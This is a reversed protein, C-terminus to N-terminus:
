LRWLLIIKGKFFAITTRKVEFIKEEWNLMIRRTLTRIVGRGWAVYKGKRLLRFSLGIGSLVPIIPYM